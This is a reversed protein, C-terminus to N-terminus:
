EVQELVEEALRVLEDGDDMARDPVSWWNKIIVEKKGAKLKTSLDKRTYSFQVSGEERYREQLEQDTIKFYLIDSILIGLQKEEVKLLVGSFMRRTQINGIPSLLDLIYDVLEESTKM